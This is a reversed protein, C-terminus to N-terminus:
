HRPGLVTIPGRCQVVAGGCPVYVKLTVNRVSYNIGLVLQARAVVVMHVIREIPRCCAGESQSGVACVSGTTTDHRPPHWLTHQPPAARWPHPM